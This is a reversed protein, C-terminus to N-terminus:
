CFATAIIAPQMFSGQLKLVLVSYLCVTLPVRGCDPGPPRRAAPERNRPSIELASAVISQVGAATVRKDFGAHETTSGALLRGDRRPVIYGRPSYIVHRAIQPTAEFCVM